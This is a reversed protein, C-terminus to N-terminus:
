KSTLGIYDKTKGSRTFFKDLKEKILSFDEFSNLLVITRLDVVEVFYQYSTYGEFYPRNNNEIPPAGDLSPTFTDPHLSDHMVVVPVGALACNQICQVRCRADVFALDFPKNIKDTIALIEKPYELENHEAIPSLIITTTNSNYSKYFTFWHKDHEVSYTLNMMKEALKTNRGPGWEFYNGGKCMEMAAKLVFFYSQFIVQDYINKYIPIRLRRLVRFFSRVNDILVRDNKHKSTFTYFYDVIRENMFLLLNNLINM